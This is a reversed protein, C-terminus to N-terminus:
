LNFQDGLPWSLLVFTLFRHCGAVGTLVLALRASSGHQSLNTSSTFYDPCPTIKLPNKALHTLYFAVLLQM